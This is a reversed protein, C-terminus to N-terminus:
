RLARELAERIKGSSLDSGSPPKEPAALQPFVDRRGTFRGEETRPAVSARSSRVMKQIQAATEAALDEISAERNGLSREVIHQFAFDVSGPEDKFVPYSEMAKRVRSELSQRSTKQEDLIAKQMLANVADKLAAIDPDRPQSHGNRGNPKTVQSVLAELEDDDGGTDGGDLLAPNQFIAKLRAQRAPSMAEIVQTLSEAAQSRSVLQKASEILTEAQEAKRARSVLDEIDIERETEGWKVLHKGALAKRETTKGAGAPANSPQGEGGDSGGSVGAAAELQSLAEAVQSPDAQTPNDAM